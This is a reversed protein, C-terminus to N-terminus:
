PTRAPVTPLRFIRLPLLPAEVRTEIVIFALVLVAAAALLSITRVSGWGHQPAQSLAYVLVL